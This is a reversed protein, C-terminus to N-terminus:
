VAASLSLVHPFQLRWYLAWQGWFAGTSVELKTTLRFPEFCFWFDHTQSSIPLTIALIFIIPFFVLIYQLCIYKFNGLLLILWYFMFLLLSLNLFPLYGHRTVYAQLGLWDVPLSQALVQRLFYLRFLLPPPQLLTKTTSCKGLMCSARHEIRIVALLVFSHFAHSGAHPSFSRSFPLYSCAM